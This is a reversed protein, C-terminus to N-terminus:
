GGQSARAAAHHRRKGARRRRAQKVVGSISPRVHCAGPPLGHRRLDARVARHDYPLSYFDIEDADTDLVAFRAVARLERSQGVSGTNLLYASDALLSVAFRPWVAIEGERRGVAWARHTHGLLVIRADFERGGAEIQDLAHDPTRVYTDVDQLSGHAVVVGGDLRLLPPLSALFDRSDDRLVRRTWSLTRAALSDSTATELGGAAILDHNGAISLVERSAILDVCENPHPGYGVLDGPCVYRDVGLEDARALVSRLAPLNAHVDSVIAYRM